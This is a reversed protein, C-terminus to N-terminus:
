KEPDRCVIVPCDAHQIVARTTSGLLADHLASHGRTGVIIAAADRENAIQVLTRDVTVDDVVAIGDATFGAEEALDVGRRAVLQAQEYLNQDAGSAAEVDLPSSPITLPDDTPPAFRTGAEWVTVVLAHAPALLTGAANIARGAAPSGDYGIIVLESSM